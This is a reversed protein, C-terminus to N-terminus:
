LILKKLDSTLKEHFNQKIQNKSIFYKDYIKKYYEKDLSIDLEINKDNYDELFNCKKNFLNISKANIEFNRKVSFEKSKLLIVPSKSHIAQILADSKHGIVLKSKSIFELTKGYVIKRGRFYNKNYRFNKKCCIVIKCKLKKETKYFFYNLKKLYSNVNKIKKQAKNKILFQDGSYEINEDVYTIIKKSRYIPNFKIWFSPYDLYFTNPNHNAFKNKNIEGFSLIYDSDINNSKDVIFINNIIYKIIEFFNSFFNSFFDKKLNPFIWSHQKILIKKCKIEKFLDSVKSNLIKLSIIYNYFIFIDSKKIKKFFLRLDNLSKFFLMKKPIENKPIKKYFNRLQEKSFIMHSMNLFVLNKKFKFEDPFIQNIQHNSVPVDLYIYINKNKKTKTM